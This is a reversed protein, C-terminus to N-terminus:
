DAAIVTGEDKSVAHICSVLYNVMFMSLPFYFVFYLVKRMLLFIGPVAFTVTFARFLYTLLINIIVMIIFPKVLVMGKNKVLVATEFMERRISNGTLILRPILILYWLQLIFTFLTRSMAFGPSFSPIFRRVYTEFSTACTFLLMVTFVSTLARDARFHCAEMDPDRGELLTFLMAMLYGYLYATFYHQMIDLCVHLIKLVTGFLSDSFYISILVGAIILGTVIFATLYNRGRRIGTKKLVFLPFIFVFLPNFYSFFRFFSCAGPLDSYLQLFIDQLTKGSFPNSFIFGSTEELLGYKSYQHIQFVFVSLGLLFFLVPIIFFIIYHGKVARSTLSRLQRISPLQLSAEESSTLGARCYVIFLVMIVFLILSLLHDWNEMKENFCIIGQIFLKRTM